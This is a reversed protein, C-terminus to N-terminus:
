RGTCDSLTENSLSISVQRFYTTVHQFTTPQPDYSEQISRLGCFTFTDWAEIPIWRCPSYQEFSCFDIEASSLSNASEIRRTTTGTSVKQSRTVNARHFTISAFSSSSSNASSYLLYLLCIGQSVVLLIAFITTLYQKHLLSM